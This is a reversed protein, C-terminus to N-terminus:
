KNIIYLSFTQVYRYKCYTFSLFAPFSLPIIMRVQLWCSFQSPRLDVYVYMYICIYVYIYVYVYVYISM